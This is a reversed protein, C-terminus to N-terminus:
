SAPMEFIAFDPRISDSAQYLQGTLEHFKSDKRLEDVAPNDREVLLLKVSGQLGEFDASTAMPKNGYYPQTILYSLYFGLADGGAIPGVVHATNLREALDRAQIAIEKGNSEMRFLAGITKPLIGLSFSISVIALLVRCSVAPILPLRMSVWSSLGIAAALLFPYIPYYYRAAAGFNPLYILLVAVVPIFSWQWPETGIPRGKARWSLTVAILLGILGCGLIDFTRLTALEYEWNARVLKLQHAANAWSEFPSWSSYPLSTPNEWSSLRGPEPAHFIKFTTLQISGPTVGPGVGGHVVTPTVSFTPRHYKISLVTLWPATCLLFMVLTVTTARIAPALQSSHSAFRVLAFGGTIVFALPFAVAKAFYAVAWCGGAMVQKRRSLIWNPSGLQSIALVMCATLLLDPTIADTCWGISAVAALGSGLLRGAPPLQLRRFLVMCSLLFFVASFFMITWAAVLPALGGRLLPVMLWSLLPGWYGSVMLDVQGSAYYGALRMYAIADPNFGEHSRWVAILLFSAQLIVISFQWAKLRRNDDERPNHAATM